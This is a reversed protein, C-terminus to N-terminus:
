KLEYQFSTRNFVSIEMEDYEDAFLAYVFEENYLICKHLLKKISCFQIDDSSM